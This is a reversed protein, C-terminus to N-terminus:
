SCLVNLSSQNLGSGLGIIIFVFVFDKLCLCIKTYIINSLINTGFFFTFM